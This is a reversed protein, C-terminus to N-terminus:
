LGLRIIPMEGKIIKTVKSNLESLMRAGNMTFLQIFSDTYYKCVKLPIDHGYEKALLHLKEYDLIAVGWDNEYISILNNLKTLKAEEEKTLSVKAQTTTPVQLAKIQALYSSKFKSPAVSAVFRLKDILVDTTSSNNPSPVYQKNCYYVPSEYMPVLVSDMFNKILRYTQTDKIKNLNDYEGISLDDQFAVIEIQKFRKSLGRYISKMEEQGFFQEFDDFDLERKYDRWILDLNKVNNLHALYYNFSSQQSEFSSPSGCTRYFGITNKHKEYLEKIDQQSNQSFANFSLFLTVLTWCISSNLWKYTKFCLSETSSEIYTKM